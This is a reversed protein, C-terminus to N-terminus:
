KLGDVIYLDSLNNTYAYVYSRGDPTLLIQEISAVGAPDAPSIEKFLEKRGTALEYRWIKAPLEGGRHTSLFRSDESSAASGTPTPPSPPRCCRSRSTARAAPGEGSLGRGDRGVGLASLIEYPGLRSGAAIM